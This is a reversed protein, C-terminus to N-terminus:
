NCSHKIIPGLLFSPLAAAAFAAKALSYLIVNEGNV